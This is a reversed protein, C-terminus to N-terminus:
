LLCDTTIFEWPLNFKQAAEAALAQVGFVETAYHGCPYLNLQLEQAMNFHHQRLEGTILTDIGHKSLEPIASGGNGSCIAVKEPADSGFEIAKFTKPFHQKLRQALDSRSPPAQAILGIPTGEYELFWEHQSLEIKEAIIANNGIESHADLPLHASYIALNGQFLTHFKHYTAETVPQPASWFLGHHVILFDINADIAKQFPVLGADVAAGIKSVDGTNQFQLGNFANPFDAVQTKNVRQDCFSVIDLLSPM